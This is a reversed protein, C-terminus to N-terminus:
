SERHITRDLEAVQEAVDPKQEFFTARAQQAQELRGVKVALDQRDAEIRRAYPEGIVEWTGMARDFRVTAEQLQRGAKHRAWLGLGPADVAKQAQDYGVAAQRLDRAARGAATYAWRGVGEHLEHADRDADIQRRKADDLEASRDPPVSRVLQNREICLEALTKREERDLAWGQRRDQGWAWVLHDHAWRDDQAVVHVHSEHRARSMAVYALERGGGDALVHTVDVTAGQSRHATIAYAHALKDAGIDEAGMHLHAGDPTVAVLTQALPDVSCVEARQSTAWAGGPGPALAVVRDGARYRRGGPAELEPGSLKGMAEWATRAAQNLAEVSSRRYALLLSDRGAAVEAAWAKAVRAIAVEQFAAPHARGHDRYWKVALPVSGARLHDLASREAPDAQRLNDRLTWVHDPHRASLAELAGGPGVADLQHYDGVAVLKAGSAAAAGLLKAIDADSSMGAEDLILVHRATLAERGHELRWRLSAVTRSTIGAGEGLAKAAQGSTATGLVQYGAAEFGARVAALMTTKGSGAVGLVFDVQHGSRDLTNKGM